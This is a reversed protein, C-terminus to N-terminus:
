PEEERGEADVSGARELEEEIDSGEAFLSGQGPIETRPRRRQGSQLRGRM